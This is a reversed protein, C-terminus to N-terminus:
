GSPMDWYSFSLRTASAIRAASLLILFRGFGAALAFYGVM